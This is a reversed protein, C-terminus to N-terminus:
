AEYRTAKAEERQRRGIEESLQKHRPIAKLTQKSYAGDSERFSVSGVNFRQELFSETTKIDSIDRVPIQSTEEGGLIGAPRVLHLRGDALTYRTKNRHVFALIIPVLSLGFTFLPLMGFSIINLIIWKMTHGSLFWKPQVDITERDKDEDPQRQPQEM